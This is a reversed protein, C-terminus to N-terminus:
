DHGVIDKLQLLTASLSVNVIPIHVLRYCGLLTEILDGIKLNICCLFNFLFRSLHKLKLKM